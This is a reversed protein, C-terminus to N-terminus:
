RFWLQQQKYRMSVFNGITTFLIQNAYKAQKRGVVQRTSKELSEGEREAVIDIAGAPFPCLAARSLPNLERIVRTVIWCSLEEELSVIV